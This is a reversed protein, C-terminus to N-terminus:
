KDTSKTKVHGFTLWSPKLKRKLGKVIERTLAEICWLPLKGIFLTMASRHAAFVGLGAFLHLMWGQEVTFPAM